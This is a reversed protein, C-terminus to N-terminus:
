TMMQSHSTWRHLVSASYPLSSSLARGPSSASTLLTLMQCQTTVSTAQCPISKVTMPQHSKNIKPNQQHQVHRNKLPLTLGHLNHHPRISSAMCHPSPTHPQFLYSHIHTTVVAITNEHPKCGNCQLTQVWGGGFMVNECMYNYQHLASTSATM